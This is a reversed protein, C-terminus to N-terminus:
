LGRTPTLYVMKALNLSNTELIPNDPQINPAIAASREVWWFVATWSEDWRCQSAPIFGQDPARGRWAQNGAKMGDANFHLSSVGSISFSTCCATRPQTQCVWPQRPYALCKWSIETM